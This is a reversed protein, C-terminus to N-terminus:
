ISSSLPYHKFHIDLFAYLEMPPLKFKERSAPFDNLTCIVDVGGGLIEDYSVELSYKLSLSLFIIM